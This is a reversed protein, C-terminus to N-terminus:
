TLPIGAGPLAIEYRLDFQRQGQAVPIGVRAPAQSNARLTATITADGGNVKSLYGNHVIAALATVELDVTVVFTVTAITSGNLSVDVDVEHDWDFGYTKLTVQRYTGPKALTERAAKLLASRTRWAGVVVDSIEMNLLDAVKTMVGRAIFLPTAEGQPPVAGVGVLREAAEEIKQVTAGAPGSVLDGFLVERISTV